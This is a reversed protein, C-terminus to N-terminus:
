APVPDAPAAPQAPMAPAPTSPGLDLNIVDLEVTAPPTAAAEPGGISEIVPQVMERGFRDCAEQSEWVETVRFGGDIGTVLHVLCDAAQQGGLRRMIEDHVKRYMEVPM